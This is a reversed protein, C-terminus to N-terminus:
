DSVAFVKKFTNSTKILEFDCSKYFAHSATRTTNSRIMLHTLGREQVWREAADLLSRGIGQGRSREDVVLGGLEAGTEQILLPREFIHLWGIVQSGQDLATFIAHHNLELISGLRISLQDVNVPYDLQDCLIALEYADGLDALRIQWTQASEHTNEYLKM